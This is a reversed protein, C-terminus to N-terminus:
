YKGPTRLEKGAFSVSIGRASKLGLKRLLFKLKAVAKFRNHEWLRARLEADTENPKRTIGSHEFKYDEIDDVNFKIM